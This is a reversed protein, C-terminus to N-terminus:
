NLADGFRQVFTVAGCQGRAVGRQSRARRRLSAFVTRVFDGLVASTLPADYALRYRLGFPLSLVWQRVPVERHVRDVLHPATDAMRRGGCSPCLGRGKCSFAVVRDLGCDDCHVRVFGHALIGCRLFGRLEREVFRPVIRERAHARVLFTELEAQIVGYLM